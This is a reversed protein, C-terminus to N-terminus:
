QTPTAGANNDLKQLKAQIKDFSQMKELAQPHDAILKEKLLTEYEQYADKVAPENMADVRAQRALKAKAQFEQMLAAKEEQPLNQDQLKKQLAQLQQIDVDKAAMLAKMKEEILNKLANQKESLEPYKKLTVSQMVILEGRIQQLQKLLERRQDQVSPAKEPAEATVATQGAPPAEQGSKKSCAPLIAMGAMIGVIVAMRLINYKYIKREFGM